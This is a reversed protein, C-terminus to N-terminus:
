TTTVLSVNLPTTEGDRVDIESLFQRFGRRRIELRHPGAPLQVQFHGGDSSVWPQGDILVEANAPQVFLDLTGFGEARAAGASVRSPSIAPTTPPIRYSGAPPPPVPPAVDPLESTAGAPLIELTDRLRFTSEARLYINHRVTRYGELYLVISHGGPTLPLSQFVGDFDDVIGAYFGDVYVAARDAADPAVQIRLEARNDYVPLYWYPYATRTWWPYPGFVPDYFYGGVFVTGRVVTAHTARPPAPPPSRRGGRGQALATVPSVALVMSASVVLAALRFRRSM